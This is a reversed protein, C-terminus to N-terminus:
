GRSGGERAQRPARVFPTEVVQAALGRGRVIVELRTGPEVLAPPVYGLGISKGLTPSPAGSTVVGVEAGGHALACGARAVGREDLVFGALLRRQGARRRREIADGGLFPAGDTKVFRDLRAELPSTADDLEHGYLPLAAELRLTDRAGLGAPALGHPAGAALLADWLALADAAACYLEFGDSGTYGTRSALLAAGALKASAFAFRPLAGLEAGGCAALVAASAPGQLALLATEDSRNKVEVGAPTHRVIWRYDKEVNAANVCLFFHDDAVRYVTVDDVVGGTANCLCGYRVRGSRLSAVPCSVLWEVAAAAGPGRLHIQGMHSVDFLGARERVAAHEALISEYQVPLEFGAFPVLRAGLRRHAEYLPTRLLATV